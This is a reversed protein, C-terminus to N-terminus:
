EGSHPLDSGAVPLAQRDDGDALRRRLLHLRVQLALSPLVLQDFDRTSAAESINLNDVVVKTALPPALTSAEIVPESSRPCPASTTLLAIVDAASAWISSQGSVSVFGARVSSPLYEVVPPVLGLLARRVWGRGPDRGADLPHPGPVRAGCELCYEQGLGIDEGCRPCASM